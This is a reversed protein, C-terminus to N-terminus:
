EDAPADPRAMPLLVPPAACFVLKRDEHVGYRMSLPRVIGVRVQGGGETLDIIPDGFQPYLVLRRHLERLASAFEPGDGREAAQRALLRLRALAAGSYEVTYPAPPDSSTAM